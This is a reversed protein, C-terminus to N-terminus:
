SSREGEAKKNSSQSKIKTDKKRGVLSLMTIYEEDFENKPPALLARGPCGPCGGKM